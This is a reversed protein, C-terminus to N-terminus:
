LNKEYISDGSMFQTMILVVLILVSGLILVGKKGQPIHAKVRKKTVPLMKEKLLILIQFDPFNEGIKCVFFSM